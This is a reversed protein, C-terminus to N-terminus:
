DQEGIERDRVTLRDVDLEPRQRDIKRGAQEERHQDGGGEAEDEALKDGPEAPPPPAPPDRPLRAADLRQLALERCGLRLELRGATELGGATRRARESRLRGM